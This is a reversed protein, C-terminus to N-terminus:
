LFTKILSDIELSKMNKWASPPLFSKKNSPMKNGTAIQVKM